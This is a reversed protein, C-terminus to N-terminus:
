GVAQRHGGSRTRCSMAPGGNAVRVRQVQAPEIRTMRQHYSGPEVSACMGAQPSVAMACGWVHQTPDPLPSRLADRRRPRHQRHRQEEAQRVQMMQVLQHYM